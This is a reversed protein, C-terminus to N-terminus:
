SPVSASNTCRQLDKNIEFSQQLWSGADAIAQSLNFSDAGGIAGQGDQATPPTTGSLTMPLASIQSPSQHERPSSTRQSAIHPGIEDDQTENRSRVDKGSSPSSHISPSPHTGFSIRKKKNDSHSKLTYIQHSTKKKATSFTFPTVADIICQTSMMPAGVSSDQMPHGLTSIKQPINMHRFPTINIAPPSAAAATRSQDNEPGRPPEHEPSDLDNQFSRQALLVAAQTSFPPDPITDGDYDTTDKSVAITHLSTVCDMMASTGPVRQASDLKESPNSPMPMIAQQEQGLESNSQATTVISGRRLTHSEQSSELQRSAINDAFSVNRPGPPQPPQDAVAASGPEIQEVEAASSPQVHDQTLVPFLRRRRYEFKPLQSSSSVICLSGHEKAPKLFAAHDMDSRISQKAPSKSAGERSIDTRAISGQRSLTRGPSSSHGISTTHSHAQPRLVPTQSRRKSSIAARARLESHRSSVTATPSTPPNINNSNIRVRDKKLWRADHQIFPSPEQEQAQAASPRVWPLSRKPTPRSSLVTRTSTGSTPKLVKPRESTSRTNGNPLSAALELDSSIVPSDSGGIDRSEHYRRRKRSNTEQVVVEEVEEPEKYSRGHRQGLNTAKRRSKKWPNVWDKDFPGRLSASLIFLPTGQLYAEALREIRRHRASLAVDDLEDDSGLVEDADVESTPPSCIELCLPSISPPPPM